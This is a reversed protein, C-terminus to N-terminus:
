GIENKIKNLTVLLEARQEESANKLILELYDALIKDASLSMKLEIDASSYKNKLIKAIEEQWGDGKMTKIRERLQKLDQEEIEHVLNNLTEIKILEDLDKVKLVVKEAGEDRWEKVIEKDSNFAAELSAHAAQAALKGKPLKLDQRVLIVQKYM